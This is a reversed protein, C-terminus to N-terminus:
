KNTVLILTSIFTLSTFIDPHRVINGSYNQECIVILLFNKFYKDFIEMLYGYFQQYDPILQHHM